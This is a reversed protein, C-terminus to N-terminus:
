FPAIASLCEIHSTTLVAVNAELIDRQEAFRVRRQQFIRSSAKLSWKFRTWHCAGATEVTINGMKVAICRKAAKDFGSETFVIM